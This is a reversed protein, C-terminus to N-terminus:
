KDTLILRTLQLLLTPIEAWNTCKDQAVKGNLSIVLPYPSKPGVRLTAQGSHPARVTLYLIGGPDAATTPAQTLKKAIKQVRHKGSKVQKTAQGLMRLSQWEMEYINYFTSLELSGKLGECLEYWHACDRESWDSDLLFRKDSGGYRRVSFHVQESTSSSGGKIDTAASMDPTTFAISNIQNIPGSNM